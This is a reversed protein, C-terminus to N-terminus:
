SYALAKLIVEKCKLNKFRFCGRDFYYRLNSITLDNRKLMVYNVNHDSTTVAIKFLCTTDAKSDCYIIGLEPYERVGYDAGKYSLTCLYRGRGQPKEIFATNDNLYVNQTSYAQYKSKAFARNFASESQAVSATDVYSQEMVYGHGRLFKTEKNLREAIGFEVFYPNLLSVSNSLMYVPVYRCQKGQGRAISTHISQFKALENSCYHGSESQFEDFMMRDVDSLLHSYKKIQDASNLSVAYGCSAGNLFLEHYTGRAKRQAKMEYGHFFLSGIDKFFKDACDDLEYNFRYLLCFKGKGELYRKVLLRSFFTTKGSTRNGSCLYIEPIMGDLDQLSLLKAGDYYANQM